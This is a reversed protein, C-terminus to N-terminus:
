AESEELEKKNQFYSFDEKFVIDDKQGTKERVKRILEKRLM